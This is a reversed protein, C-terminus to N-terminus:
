YTALYDKLSGLATIAQPVKTVIDTIAASLAQLQAIVGM